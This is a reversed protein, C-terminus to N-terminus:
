LCKAPGSYSCLLTVAGAHAVQYTYATQCFAGVRLPKRCPGSYSCSLPAAGSHLGIVTQYSTAQQAPVMSDKTQSPPCIITYPAMAPM